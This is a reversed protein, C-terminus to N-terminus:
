RLDLYESRTVDFGVPLADGRKLAERAAAMDPEVTERRFGRPLMWSDGEFTISPQSALAVRASFWRGKVKDKGAAKLSELLYAKLRAAKNRAARERDALRDREAKYADAEATGERVLAAINDVKAELASDLSDLCAQIEPTIEGGNADLLEDLLRFRAAIEYLKLKM